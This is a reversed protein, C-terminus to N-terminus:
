VCPCRGQERCLKNGLATSSYGHSLWGLSMLISTLVDPDGKVELVEFCGEKSTQKLSLRTIVVHSTCYKAVWFGQQSGSCCTCLACQCLLGASLLSVGCSFGNSSADAEGSSTLYPQLLQRSSYLPTQWTPNPLLEQGPRMPAVMRM